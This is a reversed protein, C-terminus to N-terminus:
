NSYEPVRRYEGLGAPELYPAHFVPSVNMGKLLQATVQRVLLEGARPLAQHVKEHLKVEFMQYPSLTDLLEIKRTGLMTRGLVGSGMEYSPKSEIRFNGDSLEEPPISDALVKALPVPSMKPKKEGLHDWLSIEVASYKGESTLLAGYMDDPKPDYPSGFIEAPATDPLRAKGLVSYSESDKKRSLVYAVVGPLFTKGETGSLLSDSEGSLVLIALEDNGLKSYDVFPRRRLLCYISDLDPEGPM